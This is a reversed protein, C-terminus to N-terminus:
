EENTKNVYKFFENNVFFYAGGTRKKKKLTVRKILRNFKM